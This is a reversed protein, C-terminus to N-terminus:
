HRPRYTAAARLAAAAARFAAEDADALDLRWTAPAPVEFPCRDRLDVGADALLAATCNRTLESKETQIEARVGAALLGAASARGLATGAELARQLVEPLWSQLSM